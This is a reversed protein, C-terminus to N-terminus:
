AMKRLKAAGCQLFSRAFGALLAWSVNTFTSGGFSVIALNPFDYNKSNIGYQWYGQVSRKLMNCMSVPYFYMWTSLLPYKWYAFFEGMMDEMNTCINKYGYLFIFVVTQILALAYLLSSFYMLM